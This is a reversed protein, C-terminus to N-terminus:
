WCSVVWGSWRAAYTHLPLMTQINWQGISANWLHWGIENVWLVIAMAWRVKCRTAESSARYRLLYINLSVISFLALLHATGMFIFEGGTFDMSFFQNM